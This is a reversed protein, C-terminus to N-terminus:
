SDKQNDKDKPVPDFGSGGWPHCRGIRKLAMWGGKFGGHMKLADLAYQSCTPQYRCTANLLPSILYRYFYVVDAFVLAIPSFGKDTKPEGGETKDEKSTKNDNEMAKKDKIVLAIVVM